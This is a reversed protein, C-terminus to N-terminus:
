QYPWGPQVPRPTPALRLPIGQDELNPTPRSASLRVGYFNFQESIRLFALAWLPSDHWHHHHCSDMGASAIGVKDHHHPKLAGSVRLAIGATAYSSTPGGLSSLDLPLLWVFLSVRTRWTPTQVHPQCGWVTFILNNRFGFFSYGSPGVIPFFPSYNQPLGPSVFPQRALLSSSGKLM